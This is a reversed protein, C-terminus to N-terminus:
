GGGRARALRRLTKIMRGTGATPALSASIALASKRNDITGGPSASPRASFSLGANREELWFGTMRGTKGLIDHSTFVMLIKM